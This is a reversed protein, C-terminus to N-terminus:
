TSYFFTEKNFFLVKVNFNQCESVLCKILLEITFFNKKSEKDDNYCQSM